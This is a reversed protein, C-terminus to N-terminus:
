QDKVISLCDTSGTTPVTRQTYPASGAQQTSRMSCLSVPGKSALHEVVIKEIGDYVVIM